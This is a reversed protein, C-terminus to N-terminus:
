RSLARRLHLSWVIIRAGGAEPLAGSAAVRRTPPNVERRIVIGSKSTLSAGCFGGATAVTAGEAALSRGIRVRVPFGRQRAWPRALGGSM